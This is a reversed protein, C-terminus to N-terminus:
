PFGCANSIFFRIQSSHVHSASGKNDILFLPFSTFCDEPYIPVDTLFSSFAPHRTSKSPATWKYEMCNKSMIAKLYIHLIWTSAWFCHRLIWAHPPTSESHAQPLASTPIPFASSTVTPLDKNVGTEGPQKLNWEATLRAEESGAKTDWPYCDSSRVEEEGFGDMRRTFQGSCFLCIRSLWRCCTTEM